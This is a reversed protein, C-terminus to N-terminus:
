GSTLLRFRYDTKVSESEASWKKQKEFDSSISRSSQFKRKEGHDILAGSFFSSLIANFTYHEWVIM